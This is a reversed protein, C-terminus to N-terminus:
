KLIAGDPGHKVHFVKRDKPRPVVEYVGLWEFVRKENDCALEWQSADPCALAEVYM